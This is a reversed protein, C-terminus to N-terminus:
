VPANMFNTIAPRILEINEKYEDFSGKNSVLFFRDDGFYERYPELHGPLRDGQDQIIGTYIARGGSAGRALNRAISTDVDIDVFIMACDYGLKRFKDADAVINKYNAATGDIIFNSGVQCVENVQQKFQNISDIFLKREKGRLSKVREYEELEEQTLARQDRINRLNFFTESYPHLNKTGLTDLLRPEFFNDINCNTFQDEIGLQRLLTSKGGGPLGALFIMKYGVQTQNELIIMRIFSRVEQLKM